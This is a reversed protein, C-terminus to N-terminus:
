NIEGIGVILLVGDVFLRIKRNNSENFLGYCYIAPLYSYYGVPFYNNGQSFEVDFRFFVYSFPDIHSLEQDWYLTLNKRTKLDITGDSNAYQKLGKWDDFFIVQKTKIYGTINAEILDPAPNTQCVMASLVGILTYFEDTDVS